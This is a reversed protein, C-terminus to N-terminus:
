LDRFVSLLPTCPKPYIKPWITVFQIFAHFKTHDNEMVLRNFGLKNKPPEKRKKICKEKAKEVQRCIDCFPMTAIKWYKRSPYLPTLTCGKKELYNRFVQIGSSSDVFLLILQKIVLIQHSKLNKSSWIKLLHRTRDNNSGM